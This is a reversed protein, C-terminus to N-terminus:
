LIKNSDTGMCMLNLIRILQSYLSTLSYMSQENTFGAQRTKTSYHHQSGGSLQPAVIQLLIDIKNKQKSCLKVNM